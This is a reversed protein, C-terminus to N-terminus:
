GRKFVSEGSFAMERDRRMGELVGVLGGSRLRELVVKMGEKSKGLQNETRRSAIAEISRQIGSTSWSALFSKKEEVEEKVEDKRNARARLRDGLRSRFMVTTIVGTTGAAVSFDDGENDPVRRQYEQKEVVSLIGTWDLNKSETHMWGEKVDITSTELIYSESRGGSVNGLVSKPLLKLVAPPLRSSKRHIRLTKLRGQSDISRDIVDTSLVHTSYPNPYRLFYALTVAPFSYDYTYSSEFFKVM